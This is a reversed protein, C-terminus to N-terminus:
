ELVPDVAAANGGPWCPPDLWWLWCVSEMRDPCMLSAAAEDEAAELTPAAPPVGSYWDLAPRPAAGGDDWSDGGRKEM